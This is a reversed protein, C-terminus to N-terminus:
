FITVSLEQILAREHLRAAKYFPTLKNHLHLALVYRYLFWRLCM